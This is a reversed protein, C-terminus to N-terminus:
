PERVAQQLQALGSAFGDLPIEDDFASGYPWVILRTCVMQGKLLQNIISQAQPGSWHTETVVTHPPLNDVRLANTRGPFADKGGHIISVMPHIVGKSRSLFVYLSSREINCSKRDYIADHRCELRWGKRVDVQLGPPLAKFALLRKKLLPWFEAEPGDPCLQPYIACTSKVEFYEYPERPAKHGYLREYEQPGQAYKAAIQEPTLRVTGGPSLDQATIGAATSLLMLFAVLGTSLTTQRM